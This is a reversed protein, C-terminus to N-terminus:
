KPTNITTAQKELSSIKWDYWLWIFVLVLVFALLMAILTLTPKSLKSPKPQHTQDM